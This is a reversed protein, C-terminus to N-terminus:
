PGDRTDDAFEHQRRRAWRTLAALTLLLASAVGLEPAGGTAPLGQVASASRPRGREDGAPSNPPAPPHPIGEPAMAWARNTFSLALFGNDQCTVWLQNPAVFRPPSTCWEASRDNPPFGVHESGLLETTELDTRAPPNFYAIERPRTLDRVDFVRIGSEFYGCAVATPDHPRDLSCYHGDYSFFEGGGSEARAEAAAPMHIQLKLKAVIRPRREDEVDIIRAAGAGTEDVFLVYRRGGSTFQQAHQGIGGDTWGIRSVVRVQPLPRRDQVESVDMVILGNGGSIQVQGIASLYLRRGDESLSLGHFDFGLENTYVIRPIAPDTVDIATIRGTQASAVWYTKGDPAWDGEHGLTNAPVSLEDLAVSNLLRPQLCDTAVDYVDFFAPGLSGGGAVGALLGRQQNVKLSEWTGYRFAPSTLRTALVPRRPERVDVVRVGPQATTAATLAQSMYACHGFSSSVFSSGQGQYQGLLTLNCSYGRTSRGNQRDELPVEGQIGTEPTSGAGCVAEGVPGEFVPPAEARAPPLLVTCAGVAVLALAAARRRGHDSISM